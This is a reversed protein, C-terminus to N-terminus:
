IITRLEEIEETTLAHWRAVAEDFTKGSAMELQIARTFIKRKVDSM